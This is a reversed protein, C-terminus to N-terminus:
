QEGRQVAARVAADKAELLKRIAVTQEASPEARALEVALEAFPRVVLQLAPALHDSSFWRLLPHVAPRVPPSAPYVGRRKLEETIPDVVALTPGEYDSTHASM